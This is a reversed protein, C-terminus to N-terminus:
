LFQAAACEILLVAISHQLCSVTRPDDPPVQAHPCRFGDEDYELDGSQCTIPHHPQVTVPIGATTASLTAQFGISNTPPWGTM